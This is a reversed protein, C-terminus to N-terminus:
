KRMKRRYGFLGILGSGLLLITGPVPVPDYTVDGSIVAIARRDTSPESYWALQGSYFTFTYAQDTAWPNETWSWYPSEELNEFPGTNNLGYISFHVSDGETTKSGVNELSEYFLYGMESNLMNWGGGYHYTGDPDLGEYGINNQYGDAILSYDTVPLRWGKAWTIETSYGDDLSISLNSGLGFAWATQDAWPAVDKTYDLWVLEQADDYILKYDDGNYTATGIATLAAAAMGATGLLLFIGCFFASVTKM